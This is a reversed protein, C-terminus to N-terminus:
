NRTNLAKGPRAPTIKVDADFNVVSGLPPFTLGLLFYRGFIQVNRHNSSYLCKIAFNAACAQYEYDGLGYRLSQM